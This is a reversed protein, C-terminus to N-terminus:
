EEDETMDMVWYSGSHQTPPFTDGKELYTTEGDNKGNRDHCRYQCSMPVTDGSRYKKTRKANKGGKSLTGM